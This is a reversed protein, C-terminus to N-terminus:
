PLIAQINQILSQTIPKPFCAAFGAEKADRALSPTYYATLAIVILTDTEPNNQIAKLVGWGDMGPLALDLIALSYTHQELLTLAAEGTEAVDVAIDNHELLHALVDWSAPDDEVILIRWNSM